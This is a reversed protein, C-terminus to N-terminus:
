PQRVRVTFRQSVSQDFNADGRYSAVIVNTGAALTSTTFVATGDAKLQVTALTTKGEIFDVAGTPTGTKPEVATVKATCTLPRRLPAPNPTCDVRTGTRGKTKKANTVFAITQTSVDGPTVTVTVTQNGPDCLVLQNPPITHCSVMTTGYTPPLEKIEVKGAVVEIAPSCAGAPVLFPGLGGPNVIFTFNVGKLEGLKCIEVFGTRRKNTFTVETVGSGIKVDVGGGALNPTGVMRDPPAVTISSVIDGAPIAEKVTVETGVPFSPGVVCTGGPAPGAPVTFDTSGATSGANFSVSTGVAVGLGAVKCVKLIGRVPTVPTVGRALIYPFGSVTGGSISEGTFYNHPVTSDTAIALPVFGNPGSPWSTFGEHISCGWNSLTTSTLGALAPHTAVIAVNDADCNTQQTLFPGFGSLVQVLTPIPAGGYDYYCSLAIVAGPGKTTFDALAFAIASKWLQAGGVAHVSPDTGIIVVNGTVVQALAIANAPIEAIALPATSNQTCYPDGLVIAKYPPNAALQNAWDVPTTAIYATRGLGPVGLVTGTSTIIEYELSTVGGSVTPGLILVDALAPAAQARTVTAGVLSLIAVLTAALTRWPRIGRNVSAQQRGMQAQREVDRSSEETPAGGQEGRCERRRNKGSNGLHDPLSRHSRYCKQQYLWLPTRVAEPTPRPGSWERSASKTSKRTM